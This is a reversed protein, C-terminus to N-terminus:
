VKASKDALVYKRSLRPMQTFIWEPYKELALVFKHAFVFIFNIRCFKKSINKIIKGNEMCIKVYM